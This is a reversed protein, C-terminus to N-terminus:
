HLKLYDNVAIKEYTNLGKLNKMCKKPKKDKKCKENYIDTGFLMPYFRRNKNIFNYKGVPVNASYSAIKELTKTNLVQISGNKEYISLYTYSGDGSFEAHIYQKGEEPILVKTEFTNKDILTLEDTGNDVWLYDSNPHTKVFFGDGGIDIQQEFSWDYMKWITIFSKRLHPTAFYFNGKNYWYTASFLHPMGEMAHEFVIKMSKIEYVRMVKGRRATAIIFKDYPDIFFDEIPEAIDTYTLKFTKTDLLGVKAQDRYTFIAKDQSYFEYIASIKGELPIIKIPKLTKTDLISLQQPLLSTALVYKGDRSLSVNRLNIGIRVKALPRGQKLSYKEVWGDRTPVFINDAQPFQYKIGGHINQLPFKDLIRDEEMIWVFGGEREVVPLVQRIDKIGLDKKPFNFTIISNEIDKATWKIDKDVPSKIYHAIALLSQEDLHTFSPMQTQPFGDKIMGALAKAKIRKLFAPILPPGTKGIRKPHHCSACNQQYLNRGDQAYVAPICCSVFLLIFVVKM